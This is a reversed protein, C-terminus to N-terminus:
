LFVFDLAKTTSNYQLEVNDAVRYVTARITGTSPQASIGVAGYVVNTSNTVAATASSDDKYHLLVKRWNATTSGSQNVYNNNDTPTAWTGDNRLFTTTSSGLQPGNTITNTGNFKALYGSTGSGTVNNTISPTVTVTQASGGSPTVTFGNTGNAFTYTTNNDSPMTFVYSTGGATISYKSGHALTIQNTGTSTAITTTHTHNGAAVTTSTSGTPITLTLAGAGGNATATYTLGSWSGSTHYYNTDTFKPSSGVTVGNITNFQANNAFSAAGTVVLDGVNADPATMSDGFTVPGTFTGGSIPMANSDKINYTTGDPTTVKSINAM